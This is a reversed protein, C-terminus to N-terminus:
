NSDLPECHVGLTLIALKPILDLANYSYLATEYFILFECPM